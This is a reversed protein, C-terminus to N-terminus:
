ISTRRKMQWGCKSQARTKEEEVGLLHMNKVNRDLNQDLQQLMQFESGRSNLSKYVSYPFVHLMMRIFGGTFLISLFVLLIRFRMSNGRFILVEGAASKMVRRVGLICAAFVAATLLGAGAAM